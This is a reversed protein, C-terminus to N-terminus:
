QRFNEFARHGLNFASTRIEHRFIAHPRRHKESM